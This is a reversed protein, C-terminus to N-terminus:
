DHVVVLLVALELDLKLGVDLGQLLLEFFHLGGVLQIALLQLVVVPNQRLTVLLVRGRELLELSLLGLELLREGCEHLFVVLRLRLIALAVLVQGLGVAGDGLLVLVQLILEPVELDRVVLAEVFEPGHVLLFRARAHRFHDLRILEDRRLLEPPVPLGRVEGLQPVVGTDLRLLLLLRASGGGRAHDGLARDGLLGGRAQRRGGQRRRVRTTRTSQSRLAAVQPHHRASLHLGHHM